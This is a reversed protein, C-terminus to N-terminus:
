AKAAATGAAPAAPAPVDATRPAVVHLVVEDPDALATVGSPLPLQAVTLHAGVPLRAVDIDVREPLDAPLCTVRIQHLVVDLVAGAKTLADEGLVRLPVEAHLRESASVAQFDVHLVHRTVPHHQVEKVVVSRPAAEGAVSLALLHHAGGHGLVAGLSRAAVRLSVPALGHGYLVAPVYGAHRDRRPHGPERRGAELSFELSSGSSSGLAVEGAM